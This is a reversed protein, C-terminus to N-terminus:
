SKQTFQGTHFVEPAIYPLVGQITSTNSESSDVPRSLGLDCIYPNSLHADYKKSNKENNLVISGSHLDCHILGKVHINQLNRAISELCEVKMRWTLKTTNRDLYSFLNGDNAYQMVIMYAKTEPDQTAGYIDLFGSKNSCM